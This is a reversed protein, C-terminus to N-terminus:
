PPVQPSGRPLPSEPPFSALLPWPRAEGSSVPRRNELGPGRPSSFVASPLSSLSLPSHFLQSLARCEFVFIMAVLGMLEHCISPSFISVIASKIKKPELIVASPSQLQSIVLRKSRALFTIVLRSLMNFPLSMVKGVFIWRTLAITKKLLRTHIHSNSQSSLQAGFFQHKQVTTNSFIRSLGKSLLSIM